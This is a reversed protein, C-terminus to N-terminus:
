VTEAMTHVFEALDRGTALHQEYAEIWLLGKLFVKQLVIASHWRADRWHCIQVMGNADPALTHMKHSVGLSSIPAGNAMKLPNPYNVYM